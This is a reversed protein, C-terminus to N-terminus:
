FSVTRSFGMADGENKLTSITYDKNFKFKKHGNGELLDFTIKVGNYLDIYLDFPNAYGLKKYTYDVCRNPIGKLRIHYDIIENGNKDKVILEDIYAKKGLFISRRAFVNEDYKKGNQKISFDSHFQGMGKGILKRNYKLEYKEELIVIDKNKLHTSDTDQYHIKINNDEALCMVENMIRKSMSLIESGIHCNNYQFQIKDFSKM